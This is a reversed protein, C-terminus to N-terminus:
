YYTYWNAFNTMEEAFTCTAGLCDSRGGAKPYSNVSPVIDSRAFKGVGIRVTRTGSFADAGGSMTTVSTGIAPSDAGGALPTTGFGSLSTGTVSIALGNAGAGLALPARVEVTTGIKAASYGGGLACATIRAAIAQMVSDRELPANWGSSAVINGSPAVVSVGNGYSSDTLSIGCLLQTGGVTISSITRVTNGSVSALTITGKAAATPTTSASVVIAAGSGTSGAVAQRIIVNGGAPAPANFEPTSAHAQIASAILTAATAVTSGAPVAIPGSIVSVGGITISNITGGGPQVSTVTIQGENAVAPFDGTENVTTGIHKAHIFAGIKKRQCNALTGADSCWRVGSFVHAPTVGSGVACNTLESGTCYEVAQVTHTSPSISSGSRCDTLAADCYRATQIRYYYPSTTVRKVTGDSARGFPFQFNPFLYASNQRCNGGAAADAPATCWVRDPYGTALDFLTAASGLQDNNEVNYQDTRVSTWNSTTAANQNPKETGDYNVAPRYYIAPNYYITNFDPSMFPPDGIACRDPDGSIAGADDDGSDFCGATTGVTLSHTDNVYEPMFERGMSGSDDLIFMVNPKISSTATGLPETAITLTGSEVPSAFGLAGAVSLAIGALKPPNRFPANM